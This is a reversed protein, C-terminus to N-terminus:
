PLPARPPKMTEGGGLPPSSLRAGMGVTVAVEPVRAPGGPGFAGTGQLAPDRGSGGRRAPSDRRRADHERRRAHAAHAAAGGLAAGYAGQEAYEPLGSEVPEEM